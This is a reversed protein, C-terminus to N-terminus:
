LVSWESRIRFYLRCFEWNEIIKRIIKHYETNKESDRSKKNQSKDNKRSKQFHISNYNEKEKFWCTITNFDQFNYSLFEIRSFKQNSADLIWSPKKWSDFECNEHNIKSIRVIRLWKQNGHGQAIRNTVIFLSPGLKRKRESNPRSKVLFQSKM